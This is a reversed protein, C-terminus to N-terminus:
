TADGIYAHAWATARAAEYDAWAAVRAAEYAASATATAAEYAARAPAKAAEYAAEATTTAADYAARAKASLLNEAAWEWSFLAAHEVCLAETIEVSQGFIQRFLAVQESCAGKAKLTALTLTRSV